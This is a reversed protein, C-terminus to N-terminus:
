GDGWSVEGWPLASPRRGRHVMARGAGADPRPATLALRRGQAEVRAVASHRGGHAPPWDGDPVPDAWYGAARYRSTGGAFVRSARGPESACCVPAEAPEPTEGHLPM